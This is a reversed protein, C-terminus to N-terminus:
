NTDLQHGFATPAFKELKAATEISVKKTVHAYFDATTQYRSHRFREQVAKLDADAEILLTAATHRLDHLRIHKLGHKQIFKRWKGTPTTHHWPRGFGNHFVYERDGGEWRDIVQLRQKKWQKQYAELERMYWDPMAVTGESDTKPPTEVPQGDKTLSISKTVHILNQEFDVDKWELALLEGRRFGGLMLGLFYLRWEVPEQYLAAIVERAEEENYYQKKWRDMKPREVGDMPNEKILRWEVAKKFISDLAKYINLITSGSLRKGKEGFKRADPDHLKDMFSVCHMSKIADLRMDGFEPIIHANIIYRTNRINAPSYKKEVFKPFWEDLVFDRFYMKEPSVYTGAEVELQFKALELELYEKLKKPSMKETLRITKTKRLRRGQADRGLEVVLRYSNKGRKVISGMNMGGFLFIHKCQSYFFSM